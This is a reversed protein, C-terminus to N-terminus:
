KRFGFLSTLGKIFGVREPTLQSATNSINSNTMPSNSIPVDVKM